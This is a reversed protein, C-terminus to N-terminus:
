KMINNSTTIFSVQKKKMYKVEINNIIKYLINYKKKM